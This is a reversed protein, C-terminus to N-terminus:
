TGRRPVSAPERNSEAGPQSMPEIFELCGAITADDADFPQGIRGRPGLRPDRGREVRCHRCGNGADGNGRDEDHRGMGPTIGVRRRARRPGRFASAGTTAWSPAGASRHRRRTRGMRKGRPRPSPWPWVGIHDLLDGVTYESCPTSCARATVRRGGRAREDTHRDGPASRSPTTRRTTGHHRSQLRRFEDRRRELITANPRTTPSRSRTTSPSARTRPAICDCSSSPAPSMSRTTTTSTSRRRGGGAGGIARAGRRACGGPEAPVVPSPARSM